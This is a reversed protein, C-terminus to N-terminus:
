ALAPSEIPAFSGGAQIYWGRLAPLQLERQGYGAGPLSAWLHAAQSVAGDFDGGRLSDLAKAEKLMQLAIADQSPPSFDPLKLLKRYSDYTKALIQYRGAATTIISTGILHVKIRPHDAYSHFITFGALVNYGKDGKDFTGEAHSITDLFAKYNAFM